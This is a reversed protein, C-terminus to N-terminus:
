SVTQTVTSTYTGAYANVPVVLRVAGTYTYSGGGATAIAAAVVPETLASGTFPGGAGVAVLTTGSLSLPGTGSTVSGPVWSMNTKAITNTGDTLDTASARVTWGLLTGTNDTVTTSMNATTLITGAAVSGTVTSPNAPTTIALSSDGSLQFTVTTGSNSVPAAAAPKITLMGGAIALAGAAALTKRLKM